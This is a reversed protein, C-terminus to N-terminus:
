LDGIAVKLVCSAALKCLVALSFCGNRGPRMQQSNTDSVTGRRSPGLLLRRNVACPLSRCRGVTTSEDTEHRYEQTCAFGAGSVAPTTSQLHSM